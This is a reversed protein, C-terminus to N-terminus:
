DLLYIELKGYNDLNVLRIKEYPILATSTNNKVLLSQDMCVVKDASTMYTNISQKWSNSQDLEESKVVKVTVTKMNQMSILVLEVEAKSMQANSFFAACAIIGTLVLKKMIRSKQKNM